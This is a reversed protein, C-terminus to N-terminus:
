EFEAPSPQNSDLYELVIALGIGLLLGLALSILGNRLPDPSIPAQPREADEVVTAYINVSSPNIESVWRPFAHAVANAVQQAREPSPDSYSIKIFQTKGVQETGLKGLIEAPTIQGGVENAVDEAIPRSKVGEVLTQTLQNLLDPTWVNAQPTNFAGPEQGVLIKTTAQYMPTQLFTLGVTVGTLVIPVLVIVWIRRLATLIIDRFSLVYDDEVGRRLTSREPEVKTNAMSYVIADKQVM